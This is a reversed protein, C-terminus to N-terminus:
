KFTYLEVYLLVYNQCKDKQIFSGTMQPKNSGTTADSTCGPEAKRSLTRARRRKRAPEGRNNAVVDISIISVTHGIM